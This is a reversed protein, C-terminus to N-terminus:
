RAAAKGLWASHKRFHLTVLGFCLHLAQTLFSRPEGVAAPVPRRPLPIAGGAQSCPPTRAKQVATPWCVVLLVRAVQEWTQLNRSLFSHHHKQWVRM